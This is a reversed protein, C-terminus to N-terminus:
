ENEPEEGYTSLMDIEHDYLERVMTLLPLDDVYVSMGEDEDGIYVQIQDKWRVLHLQTGNKLRYVFESGDGSRHITYRDSTPLTPEPVDTM